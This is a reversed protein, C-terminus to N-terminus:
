LPLEIRRIGGLCSVMVKYVIVMTVMLKVMMKALM